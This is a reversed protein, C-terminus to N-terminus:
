KLSRPYRPFNLISITGAKRQASFWEALSQGPAVLSPERIQIVVPKGTSELPRFGAMEEWQKRFRRWPIRRDAVESVLSGRLADGVVWRIRGRVRPLEPSLTSRVRRVERRLAEAHSDKEGNERRSEEEEAVAGRAVFERSLEAILKWMRFCGNTVRTCHDVAIVQFVRLAWLFPDRSVPRRGQRRRDSPPPKFVICLSGPEGPIEKPSKGRRERYSRVRLKTARRLEGRAALLANPSTTEKLLWWLAGIVFHANHGLRRVLERVHRSERLRRYFEAERVAHLYSLFYFYSDMPDRPAQMARSIIERSRAAWPTLIQGLRAPSPPFVWEDPMGPLIFNQAVLVEEYERQGLHKLFQLHCPLARKKRRRFLRALADWRARTSGEPSNQEAVDTRRVKAIKCVPADNPQQDKPHSGPPKSPM